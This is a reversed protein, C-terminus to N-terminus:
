VEWVSRGAAAAQALAHYDKDEIPQQNKRNGYAKEKPINTTKNQAQQIQWKKYKLLLTDPYFALDWHKATALQLCSVLFAPAFDREHILNMQHKQQYASLGGRPHHTM